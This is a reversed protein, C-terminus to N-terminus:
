VVSLLTVLWGIVIFLIACPNCCKTGGSSSESSEPCPTAPAVAYFSAPKAGEEPPPKVGDANTAGQSETQRVITDDESSQPKGSLKSSVPTAGLRSAESDISM